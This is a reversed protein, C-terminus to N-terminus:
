DGLGGHSVACARELRGVLVRRGRRNSAAVGRGLVVM